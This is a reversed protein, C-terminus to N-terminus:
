GAPALVPAAAVGASSGPVAEEADPHPPRALGGRVSRLVKRSVLDGCSRQHRPWRRRRRGGIDAECCGREDCVRERRRFRGDRHRGGADGHRRWTWGKDVRNEIVRDAEEHLALFSALKRPEPLLRSREQEQVDARDRGVHLSPRGGAWTTGYALVRAVSEFAFPGADGEDEGRCISRGGIDASRDSPPERRRDSPVRAPRNAARSRAREQHSVRHEAACALWYVCAINGSPTKLYGSPRTVSPTQPTTPPKSQTGVRDVHLARRELALHAVEDRRDPLLTRRRRSAPRVQRRGSAPGSPTSTPATTASWSSSGRQARVVSSSGAPPEGALEPDRAVRGDGPKGPGVFAGCLVEAVPDSVDPTRRRNGLHLRKVM